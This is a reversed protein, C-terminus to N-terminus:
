FSYVAALIFSAMSDDEASDGGFDIINGDYKTAFDSSSDFRIEPILRLDGININGSATLAFVSRGDTGAVPEDAVSFTEARLNIGSSETLGATVYVAVGTFGDGDVDGISTSKQSANLGLM